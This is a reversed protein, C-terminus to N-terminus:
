VSVASVPRCKGGQGKGATKFAKKTSLSLAAASFAAELGQAYEFSRGEDDAPGCLNQMMPCLKQLLELTTPDTALVPNKKIVSTVEKAMANLRPATHDNGGKCTQIMTGVIEALSGSDKSRQLKVLAVSEELCLPTNFSEFLKHQKGNEILILISAWQAVSQINVLISMKPFAKSVIMLKECIKGIEKGDSDPNAAIAKEIVRLAKRMGKAPGDMHIDYDIVNSM